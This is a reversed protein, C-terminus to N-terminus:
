LYRIEDAESETKDHNNNKDVLKKMKIWEEQKFETGGFDGIDIISVVGDLGGIAIRKGEHNEWSLKNLAKNTSSTTSPFIQAVPMDLNWIELSGGGNVSAWISPRIPSWKIDYIMEGCDFDMIPINSNLNHDKDLHDTNLVTSPKIKWLKVSWDLSSSLVLNGFDLPGKSSHFSISTIPGMHGKYILGPDIGAKLGARNYRNVFYMNGEDTGVLFTTPDSEPFEMCRSCIDDYKFSSPSTLELIEQPQTFMDITWACVIGDTSMSIINNANSTGVIKLSYVPHSHGTCALPTMLVPLSNARTDWLLIQGNYSGGVILSSHFPSFKASLIDSQSNFIYEPRDHLHLNWIMVHGNSYSFIGKNKSYSALSLEKFHSSWDLDTIVKKSTWKECQFQMVEKIKKEAYKGEGLSYDESYDITPQYEEDLAREIIKSSKEIFNQFSISNFVENRKEDKLIEVKLDITQEEKIRNEEKQLEEDLAQKLRIEVQAEIDIEKKPATDLEFSTQIQKNYTVPKLEQQLPPINFLHVPPAVSLTYANQISIKEEIEKKDVKLAVEGELDEKKEIKTDAMLRTVLDDIEKKNDYKNKEEQLMTEDSTKSIEFKGRREQVHRRFAALKNRKEEIEAKRREM